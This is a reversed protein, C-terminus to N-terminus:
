CRAVSYTRYRIHINNNTLYCYTYSLYVYEVFTNCIVQAYVTETRVVMHLTHYYKRKLTNKDTLTTNFAKGFENPYVSAHQLNLIHMLDLSYDNNLM